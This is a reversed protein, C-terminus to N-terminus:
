RRPHAALFRRRLEDIDLQTYVQTTAISEHGLLEQVARLDAGGKLLHVAYSHRLAHPSIEAIGAQRCYDQIRKAASTRRWHLGRASVFVRRTPRRLLHPRGFELYKALWEVTEKPLPVWRTKGRKGTVSLMGRELDLGHLELEIAESIRLGAGYLLELLARDRLGLPSSTDPAELLTSVTEFTLAKPLLKPKRFGGTSPLEIEPGASTRKLYKLFSRLSSLNRQCTSPSFEKALATSYKAVSVRDLMRASDFGLELFHGRARTLDNRYAAVTHPSAGRQVSLYDLFSEIEETFGNVKAELGM